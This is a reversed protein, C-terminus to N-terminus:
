VGVNASGNTFFSIKLWYAVIVIVYEDQKLIRKIYM